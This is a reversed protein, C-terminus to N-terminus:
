KILSFLNKPDNLEPVLNVQEGLDMHNAQEYFYNLISYDEIAFGVSDFFTVEQEDTRGVKKDSVLEWLEAYVIDTNLNQIEGELKTQELFEVVIKARHLLAPDM